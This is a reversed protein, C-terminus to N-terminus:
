HDEQITPSGDENGVVTFNMLLNGQECYKKQWGDSAGCLFDMEVISSKSFTKTSDSLKDLLTTSVVKSSPLEVGV